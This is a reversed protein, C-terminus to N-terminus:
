EDPDGWLGKFPEIYNGNEELCKQYEEINIPEGEENLILKCVEATTEEAKIHMSPTILILALLLLYTKKM